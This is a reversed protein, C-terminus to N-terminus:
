QPSRETITWVRWGHGQDGRLELQWQYTETGEPRHFTVAARLCATDDDITVTPDTLVFRYEAPTPQTDNRQTAEAAIHAYQPGDPHFHADLDDLDGTAAFDAWAALAAETATVVERHQLAQDPPDAEAAGHDGGGTALQLITLAALALLLAATAAHRWRPVRPNRPDHVADAEPM